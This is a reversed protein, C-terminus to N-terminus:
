WCFHTEEERETGPKEITGMRRADNAWLMESKCRQSM